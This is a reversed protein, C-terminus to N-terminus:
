FRTVDTKQLNDLSYSNLQKEIILEDNLDIGYNTRGHVKEMQKKEKKRCILNSWNFYLREDIEKSKNRGTILSLVIGSM